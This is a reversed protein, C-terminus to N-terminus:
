FWSDYRLREKKWSKNIFRSYGQLSIIWQLPAVLMIDAMLISSFVSFYTLQFIGEETQLPEWSTPWLGLTPWPGTRSPDHVSPWFLPFIWHESKLFLYISYICGGLHSGHCCCKVSAWLKSNTNSPRLIAVCLYLEPYKFHLNKNMSFLLPCFGWFHAM